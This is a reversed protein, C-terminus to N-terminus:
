QREVPKIDGCDASLWKGKQDVYMIERQDGVGTTYTSKGTYAKSDSFHIEGTGSSPPNGACSISVKFKNKGLDTLEQTCSDDKQPLQGKDIEAQTMCNKVSAGEDNLSVGQGAMMDEVLKRQDAPLNALQAKMEKMTQEAKGDKSTMSFSHEWLGPDMNIKLAAAPVSISVAALLGILGTFFKM